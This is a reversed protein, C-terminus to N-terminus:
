DVIGKPLWSATTGPQNRHHLTRSCGPKFTINAPFHDPSAPGPSTLQDPEDPHRTKPWHLSPQPGHSSAIGQGGACASSQCQLRRQLGAPATRASTPCITIALVKSGTGGNFREVLGNSQPSRPRTHRDQALRWVKRAVPHFSFAIGAM